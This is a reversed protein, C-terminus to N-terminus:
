HKGDNAEAFKVGHRRLQNITEDRLIPHESRALVALKADAAENGMKGLAWIAKVALDNEGTRCCFSVRALIEWALDSQHKASTFRDFRQDTRATGPDNTVGFGPGSLHTL